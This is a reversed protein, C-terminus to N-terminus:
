AEEEGPPAAGRRAELAGGIWLGDAGSAAFTARAQAATEVLPERRNFSTNILAGTGTRERVVELLAHLAPDEEPRLVQIRSTGDVHVAGRVEDLTEPRAPFAMTMWRAARPIPAGEGLYLRRAEAETLVPALPRYLERQKVEASLRRALAPDGPLALFSTQGLARPGLEARGTFRALIEGAVLRDALRATTADPAPSAAGSARSPDGPGGSPGVDRAPGVRPDDLARPEDGAAQAALWAAGLATGADNAASPVYLDEVGLDRYLKGNAVCNLAVGGAYALRASGAAQCAGEALARVADETVAQLGAAVDAVWGRVEALDELRGPARPPGLVEALAGRGPDRFGYLAPDVTLTLDPSAHVRRALAPGFRGPDGFAALAMVRAEDHRPRLGLHETVAEWLLGLSHQMPFRALEVLRGGEGRWVGGSHAEGIGDLVLVAARDWGAGHLASSAHCLHHDFFHVPPPDAARGLAEVLGLGAGEVADRFAAEGRRTGYGAPPGDPHVQTADPSTPPDEAPANAAFRAAPSFGIAVADVEAGSWGAHALCAALAGRPLQGAAEVRAPKAHRVRNFREEEAAVLVRGDEVLAVSSEHFAMNVGLTRM